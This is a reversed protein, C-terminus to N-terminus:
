TRKRAKKIRLCTRCANAQARAHYEEMTADTFQGCLSERDNFFHSTARSRAVWGVYARWKTM